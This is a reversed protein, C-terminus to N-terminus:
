INKMLQEAKDTLEKVYGFRNRSFIRDQTFYLTVRGGMDDLYVDLSAAGSTYNVFGTSESNEVLKMALEKLQYDTLSLFNM